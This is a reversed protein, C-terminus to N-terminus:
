KHCRLGATKGFLLRLRRVRRLEVEDDAATAGCSHKPASARDRSARQSSKAVETANATDAAAGDDSHEGRGSQWGALEQVHRELRTKAIMQLRFVARHETQELQESAFDLALQRRFVVADVLDVRTVTEVAAVRQSVEDFFHHGFAHALVSRGDGVGVGASEPGGVEPSHGGRLAAGLDDKVGVANMKDVKVPRMLQERRRRCGGARCDAAAAGDRTDQSADGVLTDPEVIAGEAAVADARNTHLDAMESGVRAVDDGAADALVQMTRDGTAQVAEGAFDPLDVGLEVPPRFRFADDFATRLDVVDVRQLELEGFVLFPEGNEESEFRCERLKGEVADQLAFTEVFCAADQAAESEPTIRDRRREARALNQCFARLAAEGFVSQELGSCVRCIM